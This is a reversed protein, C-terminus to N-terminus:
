FHGNNEELWYVGDLGEQLHEPNVEDSHQTYHFLSGLCKGQLSSGIFKVAQNTDKNILSQYSVYVERQTLQSPHQNM